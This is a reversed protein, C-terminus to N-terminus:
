GGREEGSRKEKNRELSIAGNAGNPFKEPTLPCKQERVADKSDVSPPLLHPAMM